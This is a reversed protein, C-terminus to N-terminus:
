NYNNITINCNNNNNITQHELYQKHKKTKLHRNKNGNKFKSGCGCNILKKQEKNKDANDIRYDKVTRGPINKNVCFAKNNNIFESEKKELENKSECPYLEILEIACNAIGFNGFLKFVRVNSYNGNLFQKYNSKHNSFRQNLSKITSGIYIDDNVNNTIKYIKGKSYDVM